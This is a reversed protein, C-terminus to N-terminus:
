GDKARRMGAERWAQEAAQRVIAPIDAAVPYFTGDGAGALHASRVAGHRDTHVWWEQRGGRPGAGIVTVSDAWVPQGPGGTGPDRAAEIIQTPRDTM